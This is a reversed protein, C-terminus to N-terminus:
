VVLVAPNEMLERFTQLFEAALVGDVVRHDASIVVAMRLGIEVRGDAAVPKEIAAGVALIAAEPPNIIASFREIGFMGLNTVTFTGGQYEHPQLKRERARAALDTVENSIQRLTKQDANRVVPTILGDEIGVAVGVHVDGFYRIANGAFSANVKPHRRLSLAVARVIFDNVSLKLDTLSANLQARLAMLPGMDVTMEEYFHPITTKSELLRKAIVARMRNLPVDTVEGPPAPPPAPATAAPAAAPAAAPPAGAPASEVDSRVIRGGPGSGRIAALNVGREAAIRRALPSAKVRGEPMAPPEPPEEPPPEAIPRPPAPVSPPAPSAPPEPPAPAKAPPQPPSESEPVDEGEEGVYAIPAGVAVPQGEPVVIKLLVGGEPAEFEMIAKDTEIEALLDGAELPEGEKKHWRAVTGEEMTDSLRPMTIEEPM